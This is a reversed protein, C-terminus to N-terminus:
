GDELGLKAQNNGDRRTCKKEMLEGRKVMAYWHGMQEFFQVESCASSFWVPVLSAARVCTVFALRPETALSCHLLMAVSRRM